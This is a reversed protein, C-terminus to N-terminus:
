AEGTAKAIACRAAASPQQQVIGAAHLAFWEAAVREAAKDIQDGGYTLASVAIAAWVAKPIDAYLADPIVNAYENSLKVVGMRNRGARVIDSM